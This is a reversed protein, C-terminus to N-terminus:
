RDGGEECGDFAGEGVALETEAWGKRRAVRKREATPIKLDWVLGLKALVLLTWGAIDPEWWELAHMASSPFAHHNNQLGEGFAFLAVM